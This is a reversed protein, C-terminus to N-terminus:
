QLETALQELAAYVASNSADFPLIREAGRGNDSGDSILGIVRIGREDAVFMVDVHNDLLGRIAAVISM